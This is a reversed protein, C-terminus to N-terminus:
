DDLLHVGVHQHHLESRATAPDDLLAQIGDSMTTWATVPDDDPSPGAPLSPGGASVLFAPMWEVMHRVVDRAVWGECPAPDDWARPAGPPAGETVRGAGRRYRDAAESMHLVERTLRRHTPRLWCRSSM